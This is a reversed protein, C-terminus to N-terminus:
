GPVPRRARSPLRPALRVDDLRDALQRASGRRGGTVSRATLQKLLRAMVVSPDGAGPPAGPVAGLMAALTGCLAVVDATLAPVPGCTTAAAESFGCLVPRGSADVLIHDGGLRGHTIGADHLDAVTTALAAGLGAVESATLEDMTALPRGPVARTRLVTRGEAPTPRGALTVVGPHAALGLIWREHRLRADDAPSEAM